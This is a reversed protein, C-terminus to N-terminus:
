KGAIIKKTVAGVFLRYAPRNEKKYIIPVGLVERCKKCILNGAAFKEPQLIRDRYMRKLIGPGDKQYIAVQTNCKACSAALFRAHGGRAKRYKDQKLKLKM